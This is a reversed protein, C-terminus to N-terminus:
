EDGDRYSNGPGLRWKSPQMPASARSVFSRLTALQAVRALLRVEKLQGTVMDSRALKHLLITGNKAAFAREGM